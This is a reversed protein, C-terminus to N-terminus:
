VGTLIEGDVFDVPISLGARRCRWVSLLIGWCFRPKPSLCVLCRYNNSYICGIGNAVYFPGVDKGTMCSKVADNKYVATIEEATTALKLGAFIQAIEPSAGLRIAAKVPRVGRENVLYSFDKYDVNIIKCIILNLNM